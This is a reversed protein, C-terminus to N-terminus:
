WRSTGISKFDPLRLVEQFGLPRNPGTIPNKKNDKSIIEKNRNWRFQINYSEEKLL